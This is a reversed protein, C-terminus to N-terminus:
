TGGNASHQQCSPRILSPLQVGNKELLATTDKEDMFRLRMILLDLFAPIFRDASEYTSSGITATYERGPLTRYEKDIFPKLTNALFDMYLKGKPSLSYEDLRDDTNYIGVIIIGQM